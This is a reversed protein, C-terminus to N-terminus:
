FREFPLEFLSLRAAAFNTPVEEMEEFKSPQLELQVESAVSTPSEEKPEEKTSVRPEKISTRPREKSARPRERSSRRREPEELEERPVGTTAVRWTSHILTVRKQWERRCVMLAGGIYNMLLALGYRGKLTLSSRDLDFELLELFADRFHSFKQANVEVDLHRFAITQVLSLLRGRSGAHKIVHGLSGILREGIMAKPSKFSGQISPNADFVATLFAEGAASRSSYLGLWAEWLKQAEEIVDPALSLKELVEVNVEKPYESYDLSEEVESDPTGPM